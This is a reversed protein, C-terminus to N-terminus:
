PPASLAVLLLVLEAERLLVLILDKGDVGSNRQMSLDRVTLMMCMLCRLWKLTM